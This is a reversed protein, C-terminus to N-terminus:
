IKEACSPGLALRSALAQVNGTTYEEDHHPSYLSTAYNQWALRMFIPQSQDEMVECLLFISLLILLM